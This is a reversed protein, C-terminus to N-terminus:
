RRHSRLLYTGIAIPILIQAIYSGLILSSQLRTSKDLARFGKMYDKRVMEGSM